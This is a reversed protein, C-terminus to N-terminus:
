SGWERWTGPVPFVMPLGRVLGRGLDADYWVELLGSGVLGREAV